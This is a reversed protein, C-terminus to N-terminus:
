GKDKDISRWFERSGPVAYERCIDEGLDARLRKFDVLGIDGIQKSVIAREGEASNLKRRKLEAEVEQLKQDYRWKGMTCGRHEDALQAPTM